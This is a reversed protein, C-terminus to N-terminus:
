ETSINAKLLCVGERDGGNDIFEIGAKEFTTQIAEVCERSVVRRGKEFDVVSSLGLGAARALQTQNM